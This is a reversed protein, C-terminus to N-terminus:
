VPMLYQRTPRLNAPIQAPRTVDMDLWASGNSLETFVHRFPANPRYFGLVVFRAPLGIAKGLAASLTSVDDCDVQAYGQRAITNLLEGPTWLVEVGLPDPLFRIHAALWQRLAVTQGRRNRPNVNRVIHGAVQLTLPQEIARDVLRKM